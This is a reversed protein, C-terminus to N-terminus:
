KEPIGYFVTEYSTSSHHRLYYKYTIGTEKVIKEISQPLRILDDVKHYVCIALNPANRAITEKLGILAAEEGGELDMKILSVKKDLLVKDGQIMSVELGSSDNSLHSGSSNGACFMVKKTEAGVAYNFCEIRGNQKATEQLKAFNEPEPEFAYVKGDIGEKKLFDLYEISTDGIWAGCDVMAHTDFGEFNYLDNFYQDSTWLMWLPRIKADICNVKDDIFSLFTEISLDDHFMGLTNELEAIHECVWEYSMRFLPETNDFSYIENGLEREKLIVPLISKGSAGLILNRKESNQFDEYSYVPKGLIKREGKYYYSSEFYGDVEIGNEKLMRTVVIAGEGGGFVFNPLGSKILTQLQTLYFGDKRPKCLMERLTVNEFCM